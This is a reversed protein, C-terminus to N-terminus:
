PNSSQWDKSSLYKWMINECINTFLSKCSFTYVMFIEEKVTYANEVKEFHHM